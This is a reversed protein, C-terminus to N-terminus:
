VGGETLCAFTFFLAGFWGAFGKCGGGGKLYYGYPFLVFDSLFFQGGKGFGM